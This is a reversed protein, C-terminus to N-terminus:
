AQYTARREVQAIKDLVDDRGVPVNGDQECTIAAAMAGLVAAVVENGTSIHALTAYSLLADGAGVPDVVHEAFTDVAFFSRLDEITERKRYAILGREGLKLILNRCNAREYLKQALPRVVSDQDGLAFRAERENPTIMDFGQFDCINGWRSAVQSDAVRFM